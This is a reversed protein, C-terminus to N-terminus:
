ELKWDEFALSSLFLMNLNEGTLRNREDTKINGAQSFIRELPVSTGLISIYKIALEYLLPFTHKVSKWYQIPDRKFYYAEKLSRYQAEILKTITKRSPPKYLPVTIKMLYRFGKNEVTSLVMKDVSIM